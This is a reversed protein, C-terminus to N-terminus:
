IHNISCTLRLNNRFRKDEVIDVCYFQVLSEIARVVAVTVTVTVTVIWAISCAPLSRILELEPINSGETL